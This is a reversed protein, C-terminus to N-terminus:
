SDCHALVDSVQVVLYGHFCLPFSFIDLETLFTLCPSFNGGFYLPIWPLYAPDYRGWCNNLRNWFKFNIEMNHCFCIVQYYAGKELADWSRLLSWARSTLLLGLCSTFLSLIVGSQLLTDLRKQYHCLGAWIEECMILSETNCTAANLWLLAPPLPALLNCPGCGGFSVLLCLLSLSMILSSESSSFNLNKFLKEKKKKLFLPLTSPHLLSPYSPLFPGTSPITLASTRSTSAPSLHCSFCPLHSVCLSLSFLSLLPFFLSDCGLWSLQKNPGM